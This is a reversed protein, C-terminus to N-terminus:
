SPAWHIDRDHWLWETWITSKPTANWPWWAAEKGFTGWQLSLCFAEVFRNEWRLRTLSPSPVHPSLCPYNCAVRLWGAGGKALCMCLCEEPVSLMPSSLCVAASRATERGGDRDLHLCLTDTRDTKSFYHGEIGAERHRGPGSSLKPWAPPQSACLSTPRFHGPEKPASQLRTVHHSISAKTLHQERM